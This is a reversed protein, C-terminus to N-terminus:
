DAKKLIFFASGYWATHRLYLEIEASERELAALASPSSSLKQHLDDIARQRPQFYDNWWIEPPVPVQALLEYGNAAIASHYVTETMEGRYRAHWTPRLDPPPESGPWVSEHLVLIGGPRLLRRGEQLGREIGIAHISGEAWLVDFSKDAFGMALMSGQVPFIRGSATSSKARAALQHLANRDIDLAFIEGDSLSALELTPDGEGCGIDLILPRNQPPVLRFARRTYALRAQVEPKLRALVRAVAEESM